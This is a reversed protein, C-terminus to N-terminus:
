RVSYLYPALYSIKKTESVELSVRLGVWDGIWYLLPPVEGQALPATVHSQFCM